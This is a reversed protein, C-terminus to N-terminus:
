LAVHATRFCHPFAAKFVVAVDAVHIHRKGGAPQALGKFGALMKGPFKMEVADKNRGVFPSDLSGCSEELLERVGYVQDHFLANSLLFETNEIAQRVHCGCCTGPHIAGGRARPSINNGDV